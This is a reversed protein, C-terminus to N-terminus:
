LDTFTLAQEHYLRGCSREKIFSAAEAMKKSDGTKKYLRYLFLMNDVKHLENSSAKMDEELININQVTPKRNDDMCLSQYALSYRLQNKFEEKCNKDSLFLTLEKQMTKADDYKGELLFAYIRNNLLLGKLSGATEPLEDESLVTHAKAFEGQAAYGVALYAKSTMKTAVNIRLKTIPEMESIFEGPNLQQYLLALVNQYEAVSATKAIYNGTLYGTAAIAAGALLARGTELVGAARLILFALIGAALGALLGARRIKICREFYKEM